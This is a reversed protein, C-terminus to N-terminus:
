NYQTPGTSELVYRLDKQYEQPLRQNTSYFDIDFDEHSCSPVNYNDPALHSMYHTSDGPAHRGEMKCTYRCGAKGRHGVTGDMECQAMADATSLVFWPRSSFIRDESADWIRVGEKQLAALHHFSRFIFSDLVKPKNPGPVFGGPIVHKKKYRLEPPLDLIIWVFIWIDSQKYAYLQAGDISYMLTMDEPKLDGSQVAALYCTGSFIDDHLPIEFQDDRNRFRTFTETTHRQRYRMATASEPSAWLAQLQPGLLITDFQAQPVHSKGGTQHLPKYRSTDCLPCAILDAYPGVFALCSNKCMDDKVAVVGTLDEITRKVQTSALIEEEPHRHLAANRANDYIHESGGVCAIFLELSHRLDPDLDLDVPPGQRPNRLRELVHAPLGGNDLTASKIADVFAVTDKLDTLKINIPGDDGEPESESSNNEPQAERQQNDRLSGRDINPEVDPHFEIDSPPETEPLSPRRQSPFSRTSNDPPVQGSRANEQPLPPPSPSPFNRPHPSLNM